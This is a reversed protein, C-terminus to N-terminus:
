AEMGRECYHTSGSLSLFPFLPNSVIFWSSKVSM